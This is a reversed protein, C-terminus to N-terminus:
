KVAFGYILAWDVFSQGDEEYLRLMKEMANLVEEESVNLGFLGKFFRAAEIPTCFVWPVSEKSEVISHFGAERYLGELAGAELFLGEHGSLNHKDVYQNLWCSIDSGREVDCIVVRGGPKLVRYAESVTAQQDNSHHLGALGLVVDISGDEISSWSEVPDEVLKYSSSLRTNLAKCPELCILDVDGSLSEYIGDSLYGGAAQVDLVVMGKKLQALELLASREANRAYPFERMAWEASVAPFNELKDVM